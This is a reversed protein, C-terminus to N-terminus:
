LANKICLPFPRRILFRRRVATRQRPTTSEIAALDGSSLQLQAHLINAAFLVAAYVASKAISKM